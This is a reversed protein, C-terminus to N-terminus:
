MKSAAQGVLDTMPCVQDIAKAANTPNDRRGLAGFIM